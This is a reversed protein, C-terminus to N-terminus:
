NRCNQLTLINLAVEFYNTRDYCFPKFAIVDHSHFEFNCDHVASLLIPRENRFAGRMTTFLYCMFFIWWGLLAEV